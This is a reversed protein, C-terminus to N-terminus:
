SYAPPTECECIVAKPNTLGENMRKFIDANSQPEPVPAALTFAALLLLLLFIPSIM